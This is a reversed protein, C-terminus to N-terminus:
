FEDFPINSLRIVDERQVVTNYILTHIPRTVPADEGDDLVYTVKQVGSKHFSKWIKSGNFTDIFQHIVYLSTTSIIFNGKPTKTVQQLKLEYDLYNSISSYEQECYKDKPYIEDSNPEKQYADRYATESLFNLNKIPQDDAFNAPSLQFNLFEILLKDTLSQNTKAQRQSKIKNDQEISNQVNKGKGEKRQKCANVRCGNSCYKQNANSSKYNKQCHPCIKTFEKSM